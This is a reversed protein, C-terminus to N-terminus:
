HTVRWLMALVRDVLRHAECSEQPELDGWAEALRLAAQVEFASGAAIRWHHRRDKGARGRGEAVNLALSSAATRLQQYLKPDHGRIRRLPGRLSRALELSVELAHFTM